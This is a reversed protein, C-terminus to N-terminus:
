LSILDELLKIWKDFYDLSRLRKSYLAINRFEAIEKENKLMMLTSNIDGNEILEKEKTRIEVFHAKVSFDDFSDVFKLPDGNADKWKENCVNCKCRLEPNDQYLLKAEARSIRIHLKPIYLSGGGGGTTPTFINKHEGVDVGIIIGELGFYYLLLAFFGGSHKLYVQKGGETLLKIFYALSKITSLSEKREDFDNVFIIYTDFERLDELIGIAIKRDLADKSMSLIPCLRLSPYIRKALKAFEVTLQYWPDTLSEFYFYPPIYWFPERGYSHQSKRGLITDYERLSIQSASIDNGLNAQFRIIRRLFRRKFNDDSFDKIDLPKNEELIKTCGYEKILKQFSLKLREEKSKSDKKSIASLPIVLRDTMPDVFFPKGSKSILESTPVRFHIGINAPIMISDYKDRYKRLLEKEKGSFSYILKM